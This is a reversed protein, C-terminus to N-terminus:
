RASEVYGDRFDGCVVAMADRDNAKRYNGVFASKNMLLKVTDQLKDPLVVANDCAFDLPLYKMEVDIQRM